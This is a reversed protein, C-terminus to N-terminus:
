FTGEHIERAHARLGSVSKRVGREPDLVLADFQDALAAAIITGSLEERRDGGWRLQVLASRAGRAQAHAAAAPPLEADREFRVEVGADEGELTCPVYAQAGFPQWLEDVAMAFGLSKIAVQLAAREPMRAPDLYAHLIRAM